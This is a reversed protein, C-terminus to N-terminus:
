NPIVDLVCKFDRGGLQEAPDSAFNERDYEQSDDRGEIKLVNEVLFDVTQNPVIIGERQQVSETAVYEVVDPDLMGESHIVGRQVFGVSCCFVPGGKVPDNTKDSFILEEPALQRHPYQTTEVRSDLMVAGEVSGKVAEEFERLDESHM